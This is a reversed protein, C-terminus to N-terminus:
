RVTPTVGKELQDLEGAELNKLSADLADANPAAAKKAIAVAERQVKLAEEKKGLSFLVHALTDMTNADGPRSALAKRAMAESAELNRQRSYNYYAVTNLVEPDSSISAAFDYVAEEVEPLPSPQGPPRMYPELLEFVQADPNKFRAAAAAAAALQTSVEARILASLDEAARGLASLKEPIGPNQAPAWVLGLIWRSKDLSNLATLIRPAAVLPALGMAVRDALAQAGIEKLNDPDAAHARELLSAREKRDADGERYKLRNALTFLATADAPDKELASRLEPESRTDRLVKKLLAVFDAEPSFGVTRGIENADPDLFLLTPFGSINRGELQLSGGPSDANVKLPVLKLEGMAAIVKGDKWVTKDMQKCPSCWDTYVDVMVFGKKAKAAELAKPLGGEAWKVEAAATATGALAAFLVGAM